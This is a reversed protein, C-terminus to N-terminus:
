ADGWKLKNRLVDYYTRDPFRILRTRHPSASITLTDEHELAIGIQGDFTVTGGEHSTLEIELSVHSPVLLPRHTLTHPSIPTLVLTELSPDLIPGGASMSYATSGTPSAVILGDGRLTTVFQKDVQISTAIMRGSIGKSIVADNLATRQEQEGNQHRIHGQLRLRHDVYFEQAFIKELSDYMTEITSETLFGLGGLNVGLIPVSREEVLRAARLMTGDGGLVLVLDAEAAIQEDIPQAGEHFYEGSSSGVLAAKEKRGLWDLLKELLPRIEPIQPKTLIGIVTM